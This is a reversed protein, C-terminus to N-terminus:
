HPDDLIRLRRGDDLLDHVLFRTQFFQGFKQEFCHGVNDEMVFWIRLLDKELSQLNVRECYFRKTLHQSQGFM